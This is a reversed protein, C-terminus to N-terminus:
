PPLPPGLSIKTRHTPRGMAMKGKRLIPTSFADFTNSLTVIGAKQSSARHLLMGVSTESGKRRCTEASRSASTTASAKRPTAAMCNPYRRRCTKSVAKASVEGPELMVPQDFLWGFQAGNGTSIAFTPEFGSKRFDDLKGRVRAQAEERTEGEARDVDLVIGRCAEIDKASPVKNRPATRRVQNLVYGLNLDSRKELWTRVQGLEAPISFAKAQPAAGDAGWAVLMTEGPLFKQIFNLAVAVDMHLTSESRRWKKRVSAAEDNMMLRNTPNRCSDALLSSLAADELSFGLLQEIEKRSIRRGLPTEVPRIFGAEILRYITSAHRGLLASAQAFSFIQQGRYIRTLHSPPRRNPDPRRGM